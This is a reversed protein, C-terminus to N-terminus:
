LFVPVLSRILQDAIKLRWHSLNVLKGSDRTTAEVMVRGTNCEAVVDDTPTTLVNAGTESFPSLALHIARPHATRSHRSPCLAFVLHRDGPFRFAGDSVAVDFKTLYARYFGADVQLVGIESQL